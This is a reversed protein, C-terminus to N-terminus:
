RADHSKGQRMARLIAIKQLRRPDRSPASEMQRLLRVARLGIQKEVDHYMGAFLEPLAVRLIVECALATALNPRRAGHEYRSVKAGNACGLLFAMETQSLGTRKRYTRLYNHLASAM